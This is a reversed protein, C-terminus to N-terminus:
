SFLFLILLSFNLVAKLFVACQFVNEIFVLCEYVVNKCQNNNSNNYKKFPPAGVSTGRVVRSGGPLFNPCGQHFSYPFYLGCSKFPLGKCKHLTVLSPLSSVPFGRLFMISFPDDCCQVSDNSSSVPVGPREPLGTTLYKKGSNLYIFSSFTLPLSTKM